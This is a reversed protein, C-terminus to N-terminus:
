TWHGTGVGFVTDAEVYADGYGFLRHLSVVQVDRRERSCRGWRSEYGGRVVLRRDSISAIGARGTGPGLQCLQRSARTIHDTPIYISPMADITCSIIFSILPRSSRSSLLLLPIAHSVYYKDMGAAVGGRAGIDSSYGQGDTKDGKTGQGGPVTPGVALSIQVPIKLNWTLARFTAANGQAARLHDPLPSPSSISM